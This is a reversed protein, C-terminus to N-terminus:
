IQNKSVIAIFLSDMETIKKIGEASKKSLKTRSIATKEQKQEKPLRLNSVLRKLKYNPISNIINGSVTLEYGKTKLNIIYMKFYNEFKETKTARKTLNYSIKMLSRDCGIEQTEFFLM